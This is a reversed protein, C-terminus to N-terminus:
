LKIWRCDWDKPRLYVKQTDKGNIEHSIRNVVFPGKVPSIRKRITGDDSVYQSQFCFDPSFNVLWKPRLSDWDTILEIDLPEIVYVTHLVSAKRIQLCREM